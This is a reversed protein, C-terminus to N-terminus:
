LKLMVKLAQRAIDRDDFEITEHKLIQYNEHGKGAILVMDGPLARLITKKIANERDDEIYVEKNTPM